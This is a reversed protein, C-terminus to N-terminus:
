PAVSKLPFGETSNWFALAIRTLGRSRKSVSSLHRLTTSGKAEGTAPSPSTGTSALFRDSPHSFHRLVPRGDLFVARGRFCPVHVPRLKITARLGHDMSSFPKPDLNASRAGLPQSRQGLLRRAWALGHPWRGVAHANRAGRRSFRQFRALILAPGGVKLGTCSECFAERGPDRLPCPRRGPASPARRWMTISPNRACNIANLRSNLGIRTRRKTGRRSGPFM